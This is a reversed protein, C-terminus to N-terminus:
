ALGNEVLYSGYDKMSIGQYQGAVCKFLAEMKGYLLEVESETKAYPSGGPMVESSHIMFELYDEKEKEIIEKLMIMEELTQNAPRLWMEEGTLLHHIRNKLTVGRFSRVLRTTMPIEILDGYLRRPSKEKKSYFNGHAVTAGATRHRIGPTVSCDVRFGLENLVCFLDNNVAWRGSRYTVPECDTRDSIIKKLARHKEYIIELPYETIYPCGGFNGSVGYEPPSNWAHLHMGIECKGDLAKRKIYGCFKEDMIMEYNILYVPVIGYKECLEQFRPIFCANRTTVEKGPYWSWLDDGETDVTVLFFKNM